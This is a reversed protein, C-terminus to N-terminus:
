NLCFRSNPKDNHCCFDIICSNQRYMYKSILSIRVMYRFDDLIKVNSTNTSRNVILNTHRVTTIHKNRNNKVFYTGIKGSYIEWKNECM